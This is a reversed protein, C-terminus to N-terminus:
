GAFAPGVGASYIEVVTNIRRAPIVFTKSPPKFSFWGGMSWQAAAFSTRLCRTRITSIEAKGSVSRRYVMTTPREVIETVLWRADNGFITRGKWRIGYAASRMGTAIANSIVSAGYIGAVCPQYGERWARRMRASGCRAAWIAVRRGRKCAEETMWETIIGVVPEDTPWIPAQHM